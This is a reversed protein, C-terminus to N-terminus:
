RGGEETDPPLNAAWTKLDEIADGVTGDFWPPLRGGGDRRVTSGSAVSYEYGNRSPAHSGFRYRREGDCHIPSVSVYVTGTQARQQSTELGLREAAARLRKVDRSSPGPTNLRM